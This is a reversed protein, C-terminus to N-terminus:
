PQNHAIIEDAPMFSRPTVNLMLIFRGSDNDTEEEVLRLNLANDAYSGFAEFISDTVDPVGVILGIDNMEQLLYGCFACQAMDATHREGPAYPFLFFYCFDSAGNNDFHAVASLLPTMGYYSVVYGDASDLWLGSSDASPTLAYCRGAEKVAEKESLSTDLVGFVKTVLDIATLELPMASLSAAPGIKATAPMSAALVEDAIRAAPAVALAPLAAYSIALLISSLLTAKM